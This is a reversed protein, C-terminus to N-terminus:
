AVTRSGNGGDRNCRGQAEATHHEQDFEFEVGLLDALCGYLQAARVPKGIFADFGAALYEQREHEFTSASVAVIKLATTEHHQRLQRTAEMGDMEPMRIDMFVIDLAGRIASEVADRGDVALGVEVGIGELLQALIHRNEVVDDAVLARVREGATLYRVREWEKDDEVVPVDEAGPM